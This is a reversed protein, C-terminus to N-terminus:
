VKDLLGMEIIPRAEGGIQQACWRKLGPRQGLRVRDELVDIPRVNSMDNSYKPDTNEPNFGKFIGAIPLPLKVSKDM